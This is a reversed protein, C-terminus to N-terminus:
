TLLEVEQGSLFKSAQELTRVTGLTIYTIVETALNPYDISVKCCIFYNFCPAIARQQDTSLTYDGSRMM